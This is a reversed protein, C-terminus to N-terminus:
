EYNIEEMYKEIKQKAKSVIRKVTSISIEFFNSLEENTFDGVYKLIAIQYEQETLRIHLDMLILSKKNITSFMEEVFECERLTKKHELFNLARNKGVTYLWTKFSGKAPDYKDIFSFFEVFMDQTIDKSDEINKVISNIYLCLSNSFREYIVELTKLNGKKLKRFENKSLDEM